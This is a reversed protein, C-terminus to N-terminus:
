NWPIGQRQFATQLIYEIMQEYSIGHMQCCQALTRDPHLTADTNFEIIFFDGDESQRIDFVGYDLPCLLQYLFNCSRRVESFGHSYIDRKEKLYMGEKKGTYHLYDNKLSTGDKHVDEFIGEFLPLDNGIIGLKYEKGIIFKEVIAPIKVVNLIYKLQKILENYTYVVSHATIGISTGEYAPKIIVPFEPFSSGAVMTLDHIYTWQPTRVGFKDFLAKALHKNQGTIKAYPDAGTYPIGALECAMAGFAQRFRSVFGVSLTFIFDVSKRISSINNILHQPTGIHVTTFGAKQIANEIAAIERPERWHHLFEIPLELKHADELTEYLLGITKIRV